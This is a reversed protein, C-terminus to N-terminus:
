RAAAGGPEVATFAGDREPQRFNRPLGNHIATAAIAAHGEAVSLQHLDSVLRRMPARGVASTASFLKGSTVCNVAPKGCATYVRDCRCGVAVRLRSMLVMAVMTARAVNTAAGAKAWLGFDAVSTTNPLLVTPCSGSGAM